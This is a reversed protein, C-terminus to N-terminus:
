ANQQLALVSLISQIEETTLKISCILANNNKILVAGCDSIAFSYHWPVDERENDFMYVYHQFICEPTDMIATKGNMAQFVTTLIDHRDDYMKGQSMESIPADAYVICPTTAIRRFVLKGDSVELRLMEDYPVVGIAEEVILCFVDEYRSFNQQSEPDCNGGLLVELVVYYRGPALASLDDLTTGSKTYGDGTQSLLYVNEVSGNVPLTCSLSGCLTLQPINEPSFPTKGNVFDVVDYKDVTAETCTGDAYEVSSWTMCGVPSITDGGSQIIIHSATKEGPYHWRRVDVATLEYRPSWGSGAQTEKIERVAHYDVTIADGEQLGSFDGWFVRCLAGEADYAYLCYAKGERNEFPVCSPMTKAITMEMSLPEGAPDQSVVCGRLATLALILLLVMAFIRKM